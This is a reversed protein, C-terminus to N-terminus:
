ARKVFYYLLAVWGIMQAAAIVIAAVFRIKTRPLLSTPSNWHRVALFVALPATVLTFYFVLMPLVAVSLAVSDHLPRQHELQHLRGRTKGSELCAPCLHQGNLECDCVACLFRGCADCPRVARKQPHYFCGAEGEVLVAEGAAGTAVPRTLAPFALARILEACAPCPALAPQNLFEPPLALSCCPCHVQPPTM